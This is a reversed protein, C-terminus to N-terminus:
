FGVLANSYDKATVRMSINGDADSIKFDSLEHAGPFLRGGVLANFKCNTDRRPVYVGYKTEGDEDWEVGIRHASNESSVGVIAPMGKPRVEEPRILCIGAIAYGHVIQPRFNGPLIANVVDPDVRYNLLVRRRIVGTITPIKM